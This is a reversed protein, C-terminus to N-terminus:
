REEVHAVFTESIRAGADPALLEVRWVFTEGDLQDLVQEPVVYEAVGLDELSVLTKLDETFVTLRYTSGEPGASWQLRCAHRPLPGDPLLSEVTDGGATRFGVGGPMDTREVPPLFLVAAVVAAAAAAVWAWRPFTARRVTREERATAVWEESRRLVSDPLEEQGEAGAALFRLATACPDCRSVHTEIDKRAEADLRKSDYAELQEADPCGASRALIQEVFQRENGTM